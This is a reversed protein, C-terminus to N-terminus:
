GQPAEVTVTVTVPEPSVPLPRLTRVFTRDPGPEPSEELARGLAV